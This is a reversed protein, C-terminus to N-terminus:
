ELRMNEKGINEKCDRLLWKIISATLKHNLSGKSVFCSNELELNGAAKVTDLQRWGALSLLESPTACANNEEGSSFKLTYYQGQSIFSRM